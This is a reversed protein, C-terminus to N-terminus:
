RQTNEQNDKARKVAMYIVIIFLLASLLWLPASLDDLTRPLNAAMLPLIGALLILPVLHKITVAEKKWLFGKRKNITAYREPTQCIDKLQFERLINQPFKKLIKSTM